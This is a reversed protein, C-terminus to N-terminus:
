AGAEADRAAAFCAAAHGPGGHEELPPVAGSCVDMARDCRPVFACGPPRETAEPPAGELARLATTGDDRLRPVARLLARTYPHLPTGFVTPTDGTEVVRGAYMVAVRDAVRAVVGLDHTILIVSMGLRDRMGVILELIQAQITVDLATTPEDAVLLAPSCSIAMAIMVRQRMGGSLEHPYRDLQEQPSPIGVLGLLEAARERAAAKSVDQHSRVVQAIQRGVTFVPNLSSMPDQFVMGIRGGRLRRMAGEDLGLLDEGAFRLRAAEVVGPADVLRLLSKATLSKGSGSEGVLALIEGSRVQLSAGRVCEAPGVPSPFTVRLDEVDLLVETAVATASM